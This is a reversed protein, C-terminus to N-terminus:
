VKVSFTMNSSYASEPNDLYIYIYELEQYVVGRRKSNQVAWFCFDMKDVAQAFENNLRTGM